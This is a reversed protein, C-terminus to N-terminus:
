SILKLNTDYQVLTKETYLVISLTLPFFFSLIDYISAFSNVLIALTVNTKTYRAIEPHTM